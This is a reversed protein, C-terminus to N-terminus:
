PEGRARKVLEALEGFYADVRSRTPAPTVLRPRNDLEAAVAARVAAPTTGPRLTLAHELDDPLGTM